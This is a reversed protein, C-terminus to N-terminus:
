ASTNPRRAVIEDQKDITRALTVQTQRGGSVPNAGTVKMSIAPDVIPECIGAATKTKLGQSNYLDEVETNSLARGYLRVEDVAGNTSLQPPTCEDGKEITFPQNGVVMPATEEYSFAHSGNVFFSITTGQKRLLLHHWSPFPNLAESGPSRSGGSAHSVDIFPVFDKGV